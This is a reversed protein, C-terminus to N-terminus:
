KTTAQIIYYQQTSKTNIKAFDETGNIGAVHGGDLMLALNFGFKKALNNISASSTM